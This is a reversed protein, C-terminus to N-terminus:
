YITKNTKPKNKTKKLKSLWEPTIGMFEAIYKSPINQIVTPFNILLHDYLKESTNSIIKLKLDNEEVLATIVITDYLQKLATSQQLLQDIQKKPMSLVVSQSIARLECQTPTQNFYSDICAMFPHLNNLYFNITKANGTEQNIHRCVFGGQIVYYINQCIKGPTLLQTNPKLTTITLNQQITKSITPNLQINNLQQLFQDIYQNNNHM